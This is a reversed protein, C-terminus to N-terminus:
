QKVFSQLWYLNKSFSYLLTRATKNYVFSFHIRRFLQLIGVSVYNKLVTEMTIWVNTWINCFSSSGKTPSARDGTWKVLEYSNWESTRSTNIQSCEQYGNSVCYKTDSSLQSLRITSLERFVPSTSARWYHITQQWSPSESNILEKFKKTRKAM